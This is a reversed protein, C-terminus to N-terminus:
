LAAVTLKVARLGASVVVAVLIVPTLEEAVVVYFEDTVFRVEGFFTPCSPSRLLFLNM